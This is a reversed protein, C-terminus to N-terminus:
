ALDGRSFSYCDLGGGGVSPSLIMAHQVRGKARAGAAIPGGGYVASSRGGAAHLMAMQGRVFCRHANESLLGPQEAGAHGGADRRRKAAEYDGL